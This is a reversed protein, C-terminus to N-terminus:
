TPSLTPSLLLRLIIIIFHKRRNRTSFQLCLSRLFSFKASKHAGLFYNFKASCNVVVVVLAVVIVVVVITSKHRGIAGISRYAAIFRFGFRNKFM